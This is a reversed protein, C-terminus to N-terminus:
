GDSGGGGGDGGCGSGGTDVPSQEFSLSRIKYTHSTDVPTGVCVWTNRTPM